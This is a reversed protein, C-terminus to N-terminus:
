AADPVPGVAPEEGEGTGLTRDVLRKMDALIKAEKRKNEEFNYMALAAKEEASYVQNEKRIRIANMRAHRSGSMVYGLGEFQEIEDSTLGVEGRRPIRKGSQVFAAMAVGEGPRLAGGYNMPKGNIDHTPLVPGVVQEEEEQQRRRKLAEEEAMKEAQLWDSFLSLQAEQLVPDVEEEPHLAHPGDEGAAAANGLGDAAAAAKEPEQEEAPATKAKKKTRRERRAGEGESDSSSSAEVATDAEEDSSRRPSGRAKGDAAPASREPPPTPSNRWVCGVNRKWMKVRKLRRYEAFDGAKCDDDSM